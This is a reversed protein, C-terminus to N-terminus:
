PDLCNSPAHALVSVSSGTQDKRKWGGKKGGKKRGGKKLHKDVKNVPLLQNAVTHYANHYTIPHFSSSHSTPCFRMSPASKILKFPVKQLVKVHFFFHLHFCRVCHEFILKSHTLSRLTLVLIIFSNLSFLFLKM